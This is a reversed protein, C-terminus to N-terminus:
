TLGWEDILRLRADHGTGDEDFGVVQALLELQEPGSADREDVRARPSGRRRGCSSAPGPRYGCRAGDTAGLRPSPQGRIASGRRRGRQSPFITSISTPSISKPDCSRARHRQQRRPPRGDSAASTSAICSRPQAVRPARLGPAPDRRPSASGGPSAASLPTPRKSLLRRAAGVRLQCATSELM